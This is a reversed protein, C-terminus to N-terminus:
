VAFRRGNGGSCQLTDVNHTCYDIMFTMFILSFADKNQLDKCFAEPDEIELETTYVKGKRKMRGRLEVRNRTM